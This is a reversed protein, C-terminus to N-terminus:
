TKNKIKDMFITNRNTVLVWVVFLLAILKVFYGDYRSSEILFMYVSNAIETCFSIGIINKITNSKMWMITPFLWMLYWPHFNTLILLFLCVSLNYKRIINYFRINKETLLNICFIIYYLVFIIRFLFKAINMIDAGYDLILAVYLSCSYRETQVMMSFLPQFDRLYPLYEALYLLLFVIGYEICRLFRIILRKEERYHYLIVIPLLLITFYKIGTALVLFIISLILSKRKLLFYISLLVFFLIIIDNHVNGIAEVLIFPNLGYLISFKMRKSLKYIIYTNVIHIILNVLKFVFLALTANKMSISSCIKFFTQATPGYVVTTNGWYNESGKKLIEDDINEINQEYYDRTTTYYPNQNYRADLEGVGMYYFIDSSTWPLMIMFIIGIIVNYKLLSKIDKFMNTKYIIIYFFTLLIFLFIYCVTSIIKNLDKNMAFNFYTDFQLITRNNILYILSPIVLLICIIIFSIKTIRKRM